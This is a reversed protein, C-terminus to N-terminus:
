TVLISDIRPLQVGIHRVKKGVEHCILEHGPGTILCLSRREGPDDLEMQTHHREQQDQRMKQSPHTDAADNGYEGRTM